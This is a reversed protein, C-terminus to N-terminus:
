IMGLDPYDKLYQQLSNSVKIDESDSTPTMDTSNSLYWNSPTYGIFSWLNLEKISKICTIVESESNLTNTGVSIRGFMNIRLAYYINDKETIKWLSVDGGPVKAIIPKVEFDNLEAIETPSRKLRLSM